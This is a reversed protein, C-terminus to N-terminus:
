LRPRADSVDPFAPEPGYLEEDSLRSRRMEDESKLYVYLLSIPFVIMLAGELDAWWFNVSTFGSIFFLLSLVAVLYQMMEGLYSERVAFAITALPDKGTMPSFVVPCTLIDGAWLLLAALMGTYVLYDTSWYHVVASVGCALLTWRGVQAMIDGSTNHCERCVTLEAALMSVGVALATLAPAYLVTLFFLSVSAFNIRTAQGIRIPWRRSAVVSLALIGLLAYEHWSLPALPQSTWAALTVLIAATLVVVGILPRPWTRAIFEEFATRRGEGELAPNDQLITGRM